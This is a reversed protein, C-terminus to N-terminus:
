ENNYELYAIAQKLISPEDQLLGLAKNCNNCLIGRVNGTAHCHDLCAKTKNDGKLDGGIIAHVKVDCILCRNDQKKLMINFEDLTIGYNRRLQRCRSKDKNEARYKAQRISECPVCRNFYSTSDKYRKSFDVIPKVERCDKCQKTEM